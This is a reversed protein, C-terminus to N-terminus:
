EETRLKAIDAAKLNSAKAGFRATVFNAVSAIEDDSYTTGFAPMNHPDNIEHGPGGHLIVQAVNVATPDNVSRTGTLTAESIGPSVGSWGHCGACAGAYVSKGHPDLSAMAASGPMGEAVVTRPTPLDHSAVANVSRLYVVLASVDEPRLFALSNQVAEGMPGAATGRGEAHGRSLYQALDADSWEGVGSDKDQTINYARWGAQVAGAFKERNNLSFFLNRPTHCEGCHGLAEALYAGRNWQADHDTHPEFHRDPNFLMAWIRMLPRQNFPFVLTNVPAPTHIPNLSFLYAKIALVDADTLYTYSAYPMAPYLQRHERGVGQRVAAVFEADSYAGIGTDQDPTINTSYLTGFPLKFARGGTYAAGGETTHCATCDAARALYEGRAVLDSLKLVAPVGSPDADHYDAMAVKAAGAFDTAKPGSVSYATIAIGILIVLGIVVGVSRTAAKSM